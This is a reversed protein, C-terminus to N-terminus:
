LVKHKRSWKIILPVLIATPLLWALINPLVTNNVVLFATLAAIYSGMMRQIHVLLWFNKANIKGKYNRFDQSVMLISILGFVVLVFGFYNTQFILYGGFIVFASGFVLMLSSLFWDIAQPKQGANLKKLYIFRQGTSVMYISFIAIILLFHNTHILSMLLGAFGNILMGYFFLLGISKHLTDGKKRGINISGAMLSVSGAAIHLYLLMTFFHEM